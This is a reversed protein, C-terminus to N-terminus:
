LGQMSQAAKRFKESTAFSAAKTGMISGFKTMAATFRESEAKLEEPAEGKETQLEPYKKDLAESKVKFEKLKVLLAELIPAAEDGSEAKELKANTAEMEASMTNLLDKAEGMGSKKCAFVGVAIMAIMLLIKKQM